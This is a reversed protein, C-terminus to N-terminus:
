EKSLKLKYSQKSTIHVFQGLTNTSTYTYVTWLFGNQSEESVKWKGLDENVYENNSFIKFDSLQYTSLFKFGISGSENTSVLDFEYNHENDIPEVLEYKYEENITAFFEDMPLILANDICDRLCVDICEEIVKENFLDGYEDKSTHTLVKYIMYYWYSLIKKYQQCTNKGQLSGSVDYKKNVFDIFEEIYFCDVTYYFDPSIKFKYNFIKSFVLLRSFISCFDPTYEEDCDKCGCIYNQIDILLDKLYEREQITM